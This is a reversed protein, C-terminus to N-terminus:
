AKLPQRFLEAIHCRFGPLIDESVLYDAESLITTKTPSHYIIITRHEPSILWVQRVGAAFYEHVKSIVKEFLDNPSVIEVALDPAIQWIGEPEGEPGIRSASVFAVDPLRENQGIKFTADPGYVGGLRHAEVHLGLRTILRVGVGSHRAGGMEKEEPHGDVIEYEKDPAAIIEPSVSMANEKLTEM